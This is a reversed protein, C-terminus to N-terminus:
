ATEAKRGGPQLFLETVKTRLWQVGGDARSREHWYVRIDFTPLSIPAPVIRYAGPDQFAMVAVEPVTLLYDTTTLIKEVSLYHSLTIGVRRHVGKARLVSEVLTHGSSPADIVMHTADAFADLDLRGRALYHKKRMVTVFHERLLVRSHVRGKIAPLAGVAVDIAGDSLAQQVEEWPFHRIHLQLGPAEKLLFATLRPLFVLQGIDSMHLRLLRTSTAPDFEGSEKLSRNLDTLSPLVRQRFALAHATPTVGYRSRVFLPDGLAERWRRVMLSLVPQSVQLGLAARTLSRAECIACFATLEQVTWNYGTGIDSRSV